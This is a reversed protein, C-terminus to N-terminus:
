QAGALGACDCEISESFTCGPVGYIARDIEAFRAAKQAAPQQQIAAFMAAQHKIAADRDGAAYAAILGRGHLQIADM